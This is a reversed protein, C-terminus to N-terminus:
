PGAWEALPGQSPVFHGGEPGGAAQGLLQLFFQQTIDGGRRRM